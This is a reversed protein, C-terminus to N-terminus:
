PTDSDNWTSRVRRLAIVVRTTNTNRVSRGGRSKRGKRSAEVTAMSWHPITERISGSVRQRPSLCERAAHGRAISNSGLAIERLLHKTNQQM